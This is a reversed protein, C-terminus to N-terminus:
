LIKKRRATINTGNAPSFSTSSLAVASSMDTYSSITASYTLKPKHTAVPPSRKSGVNSPEGANLWKAYLSV